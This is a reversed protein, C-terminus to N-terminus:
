LSVGDAARLADQAAFLARYRKAMAREGLMRAEGDRVAAIATELATYEPRTPKSM